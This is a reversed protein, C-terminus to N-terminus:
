RDAHTPLDRHVSYVRRAPEYLFDQDPLSFPREREPRPLWATLLGRRGRGHHVCGTDLGRLGDAVHLGQLAWHGYVVGYDHGRKSWEEHWAVFGAPALEPPESSWAGTANVSRCSVVRHLTDLDPDLLPDGALFREADRLSGGALRRNVRDAREELEDLSWDPHVSAHVMAFRQGGLSGSVAIPRRRLWDLWDRVDPAELVDAISDLPSLPRRGAAVELLHLEHNGLVHQGRGAAVRERICRLARLNDPGRNVVDGVSWITFEAGVREAVRALLAELEDACGQVDGVFVPRIEDRMGGQYCASDSDGRPNVPDPPVGIRSSQQGSGAIQGVRACM